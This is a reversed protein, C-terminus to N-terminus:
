LAECTYCKCSINKGGRRVICIAMFYNSMIGSPWFLMVPFELGWIGVKEGYREKDQSCHGFILSCPGSYLKHYSCLRIKCSATCQMIRKKKCMARSWQM